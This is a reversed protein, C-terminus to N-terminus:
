SLGQRAKDALWHTAAIGLGEAKKTGWTTAKETGKMMSDGITNGLSCGSFYSALGNVEKMMVGTAKVGCRVALGSGKFGYKMLTEGVTVTGRGIKKIDM